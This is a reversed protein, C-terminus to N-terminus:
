SILLIQSIWFPRPTLKATQYFSATGRFDPAKGVKEEFHASFHPSCSPIM